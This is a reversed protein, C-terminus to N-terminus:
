PIFEIATGAWYESTITVSETVDSGSTSSRADVVALSGGNAETAVNSVRLQGDQPTWSTVATPSYFGAVM